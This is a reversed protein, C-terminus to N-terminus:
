VKVIISIFLSCFAFGMSMCVMLLLLYMFRDRAQAENYLMSIAIFLTISAVVNMIWIKRLETKIINWDEKQDMYQSALVFSILYLSASIWPFLIM